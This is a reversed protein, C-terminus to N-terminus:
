PAFRLRCLLGSPRYDFSVAEFSREILTSGFGKTKPPVVPPGGSESWVLEVAGDDRRTWAISVRGQERSLAGYKVANTALEHLGMIVALSRDGNLSLNPGDLAFRDPTFPELASLIVDRLPARQRQEGGMAAHAAGLAQLRALFADREERPAHRLTQTAIAQVTALLNKIRHLSERLLLERSEMQVRLARLLSAHEPPVAEPVPMPLAPDAAAGACTAGAEDGAAGAAAVAPAIDLLLDVAGILGGEDDFLPTANETFCLRIGDARHLMAETGLVPRRERLCRLLATEEPPLAAGDPGYLRGTVRFLTSGIVPARGWFLAAAANYSTIRAEADTTYVAAPLAAIARVSIPDSRLM